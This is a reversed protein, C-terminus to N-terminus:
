HAPIMMVGKGTEDFVTVNSSVGMGVRVSWWGGGSGGVWGRYMCKVDSSIDLMYHQKEGLLDKMHIRKLFKISRREHTHEWLKPFFVNTNTMIFLLIIMERNQLFKSKERSSM